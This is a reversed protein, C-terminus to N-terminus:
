PRLIAVVDIYVLTLDLFCYDIVIYLYVGIKPRCSALSALAIM